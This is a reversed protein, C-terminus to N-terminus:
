KGGLAAPREGCLAIYIRPHWIDDDCITICFPFTMCAYGDPSMPHDDRYHSHQGEITIIRSDAYREADTVFRISGMSWGKDKYTGLADMFRKAVLEAPEDRQRLVENALRGALVRTAREHDPGFGFVIEM